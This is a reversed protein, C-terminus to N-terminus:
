FNGSLKWTLNLRGSSHEFQVIMSYIGVQPIPITQSEQFMRGPQLKRQWVIVGNAGTLTVVTRGSNVIGDLNITISANTLRISVPYTNTGEANWYTMPLDPLFGFRVGITAYLVAFAFVIM